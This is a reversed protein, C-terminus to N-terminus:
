EELKEKGHRGPSEAKKGEGVWDPLLIDMDRVSKSSWMGLVSAVNMLGGATLMLAAGRGKGTGLLWVFTEAFRGGEQMGPEFILDNIPGSLLAAIPLSLKQISQQLTFIRGQMEPPTKSQWISERLARNLPVVLM